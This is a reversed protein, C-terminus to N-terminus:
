ENWLDFPFVSLLQEQMEKIITLPLPRVQAKLGESVSEACTFRGRGTAYYWDKYKTIDPSPTDMLMVAPIGYSEALIIGHLSSSIVLETNIIKDIIRKWDSSFTCIVNDRGRYSEIKSYHPIIVYRSPAEAKGKYFLPTFVAPDGFIHPCEYGMEKLIKRTCPGRVARIDLHHRCRHIYGDMKRLWRKISDTGFGSGWITADQYGLLISGIAYLHKPGNVKKDFNIGQTTCIYKVVEVSLYDGINNVSNNPTVWANLNVKEPDSLCIRDCNRLVYRNKMFFRNIKSARKDTQRDTM